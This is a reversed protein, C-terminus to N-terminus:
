ISEKDYFLVEELKDVLKPISYEEALNRANECYKQYIGEKLNSIELIKEALSQASGADAIFGANKELLMNHVENDSLIPKGAALYSFFKNQSFGYEYLDLNAVPLVSLDSQNMISPIYNSKVQGHFEINSLGKDIAKLELEEKQAGDGFVDIKIHTHIKLHEAALVLVELVNSLNISGTYVVRFEPKDPYSYPYKKLDSDYKVLDVGNNINYVNKEGITKILNHDELYKKGNSLTFIIKDSKKYIRHELKYLVKTIISNNRLAGFEVLTLPWLDRVESVARVKKRRSVQIGALLTLLHVSSSYIVDPEPIKESVTKVTRKLNLYYDLMNMVRNLSNGSYARTKISVYKIGEEEKIKFLEEDQNFNIDHYHLQSSHFVIVNYGRRLLEKSFYNHRHSPMINYPLAYHNFIWITKKLLEM